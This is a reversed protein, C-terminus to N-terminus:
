ARHLQNRRLAHRYNVAVATLTTSISYLSVIRLWWLLVKKVICYYTYDRSKPTQLNRTYKSFETVTSM